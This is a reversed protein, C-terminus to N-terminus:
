RGTLDRKPQHGLRLATGTEDLLGFTRRAIIAVTMVAAAARTAPRVISASWSPTERAEAATPGAPREPAFAQPLALAAAMEVTSIAAARWM